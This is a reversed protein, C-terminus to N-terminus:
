LEENSLRIAVSVMLSSASPHYKAYSVGVNFRSVKFGAGASFGGLGNGEMLKMDANTKPNFGAGVWFNDSPVFDIGFVLHKFATQIFNDDNETTTKDIYNLKWRNLYMGTVSIRFPAHALRWTLGMRIDWPTKQRETDYAKLQAGINNLVLGFALDKEPDFYSLGADVALGFSSYDALTSYLAKLSLGGRWKDSLDYSYTAQLAMDQASFTGLVVDEPSAEKFTGYNIYTVGVALAGREKIAKTFIASGANIDSIYNLYNVNIMGDMEGGLLAPNHFVTSPDREVISVNYGGLAGIHASSPLRLFDYSDNGDQSYIMVPLFIFFLISLYRM